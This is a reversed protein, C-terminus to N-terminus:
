LARAAAAHRGFLRSSSKQVTGTFLDELGPVRRALGDSIEALVAQLQVYQGNECDSRGLFDFLDHGHAALGMLAEFHAITAITLPATSDDLLAGHARCRDHIWAGLAPNDGLDESTVLVPFVRMTPSLIPVFRGDRIQQAKESLRRLAGPRHNATSQAFLFQEYWKAVEAHTGANKLVSEPMLRAKVSFLAVRDGDVIVVDEIETSDGILRSLVIRHRFRPSSEAMQAVRRCWSEVLLGFASTWDQGNDFASRLRGWLGYQLHNILMRPSSAAIRADDLAVFPRHFFIVPPKPLGDLRVTPRLQAIAEARSWVMERVRGRLVGQREVDLSTQSYWTTLDIVPLMVPEIGVNWRSSELMLPVLVAQVHEGFDGFAKETVDRWREAALQQPREGFIAIARCLERVLDVNKNFRTVRAMEAVLTELREGNAEDEWPSLYDNAALMWRLVRGDPPVRDDDAGYLLVLAQLFYIVEDHAVQHDPNRWFHSAIQGDYPSSTVSEWQNRLMDGTFRNIISTGVEHKSLLLAYNALAVFSHTWGFTAIDAILMRPDLREGFVQQAGVWPHMYQFPDRAM